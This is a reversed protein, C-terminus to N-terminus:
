VGFGVVWPASGRKASWGDAVALVALASHGLMGRSTPRLGQGRRPSPVPNSERTGTMVLFEDVEAIGASGALACPAPSSGGALDTSCGLDAVSDRHMVTGGLHLVSGLEPVPFGIPRAM